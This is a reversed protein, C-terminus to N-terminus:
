TAGHTGLGRGAAVNTLQTCVILIVCNFYKPKCSIKAYVARSCPWLLLHLGKGYAPHAGM